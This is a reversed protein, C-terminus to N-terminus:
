KGQNSNSDRNLLSHYLYAIAEACALGMGRYTDVFCKVWETCRCAEQLIESELLPDVLLLFIKLPYAYQEMMVDNTLAIYRGLM